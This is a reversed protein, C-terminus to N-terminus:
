RKETTHVSRLPILSLPTAVGPRPDGARGARAPNPMVNRLLSGGALGSPPSPWRWVSHRLTRSRKILSSFSLLPMSRPRCHCHPHCQCPRGLVPSKSRLMNAPRLPAPCSGARIPNVLIQARETYVRGKRRELDRGDRGGRRDGRWESGMLTEMSSRTEEKEALWTDCSAM